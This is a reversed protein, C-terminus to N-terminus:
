PSAGSVLALAARADDCLLAEPAHALASRLAREAAGPVLVLLRAGAARVRAALAPDRALWASELRITEAGATALPEIERPSDILAVQAFAPLAVRLARAQAASRVGLVVERAPPAARRLARELEAHYAEDGQKLDLLLAHGRRPLALLESLAPVREGSGELTLGLLEALALQPVRGRGRTTRRVSEDHMLVLAGDRAARVDVECSAGLAFAARCAALSNEPAALTAGRHAFVLPADARALAALLLSAVLAAPIARARSPITRERESGM